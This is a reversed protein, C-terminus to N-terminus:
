TTRRVAGAGAHILLGKGDFHHLARCVAGRGAAYVPGPVAASRLLDSALVTPFCAMEQLLLKNNIHM